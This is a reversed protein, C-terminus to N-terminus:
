LGQAEFASRYLDVLDADAVCLRALQLYPAIDPAQALAEATIRAALVPPFAFVGTGIAPFAISRISHENTAQLMAQFAQRLIAPADDHHTYSAARVHIVWPNPLKFGPTVLYAGYALPAFPKCYEELKPGAATHIAGAVGSGLRLNANASNVLAEVDPQKVLNAHVIELKM